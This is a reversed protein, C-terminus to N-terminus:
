GGAWGRALQAGGRPDPRRQAPTVTMNHALYSRVGTEAELRAFMECFRRRFPTLEAESAPREAGHRGFM